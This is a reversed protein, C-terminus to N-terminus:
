SLNLDKSHLIKCLDLLIVLMEIAVQCWFRIAYKQGALYPTLGKNAQSIGNCLTKLDNRVRKLEKVLYVNFQIAWTSFNCYTFLLFPKQQILSLCGAKRIMNKRAVYYLVLQLFHNPSCQGSHVHPKINALLSNKQEAASTNIRRLRQIIRNYKRCTLCM